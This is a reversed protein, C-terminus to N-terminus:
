RFLTRRPDLRQNILVGLEPGVAGPRVKHRCLVPRLQLRLVRLEFPRQLELRSDRTALQSVSTRSKPVTEKGVTSVSSDTLKSTDIVMTAENSSGRGKPLPSLALM